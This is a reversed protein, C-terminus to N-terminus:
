QTHNRLTICKVRPYKRGNLFQGIFSSRVLYHYSAFLLALTIVLILFLKIPWELPWSLMWAQLLWVIPLHMLYMWYSADALYRWRANPAKLYSVAIGIIAFSWCWQAFVYSGAYIAREVNSLAIVSFKPTIGVLYLTTITGVLAGSFYWFWDAALTKLCEQQRHLYWGVLFAAGYAILGPLNPVLGVIPSPIGFWQQWWTAYFLPVAIPATLVLPALGTRILFALFQGIKESITSSTGFRAALTRVTLVLMYILLLLYLFWLHGWPVAPGIIPMPWVTEPPGKIGLQRAGWIIAIVTFPMVVFYFALLPLGIRRLRNKIFGMAGLRQYLIHAFFGAIIFFLSMRFLHITFFLVGLGASTSSDSLPWNADRFGPLFSTICHLVIGALLACARVADLSNFRENTSM